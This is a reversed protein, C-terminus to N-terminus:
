NFLLGLVIDKYRGNGLIDKCLECEHYYYEKLVFGKKELKERSRLYIGGPGEHELINYISDYQILKSFVEAVTTNRIDGCNFFYNDKNKVKQYDIFCCRRITKDYEIFLQNLYKCRYYKLIHKANIICNTKAENLTAARGAPLLRYFSANIKNRLLSVRAYSDRYSINNDIMYRVEANIGNVKLANVANIVYKLDIYESHYRSTSLVVKDVGTKKLIKSINEAERKTKAWLGNSLLTITWNYKRTNALIESIEDIYITPEGGTIFMKRIGHQNFADIHRIILKPTLKTVKAPGADVACHRCSANCKQNYSLSLTDILM